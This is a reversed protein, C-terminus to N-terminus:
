GARAAFGQATLQEHFRAFLVDVLRMEKLREHLFRVTKASIVCDEFQLGLFCIFSLRVRIQYEIREDSLNHLQQLALLLTFMMAVDIPRVGANSKREKEHV